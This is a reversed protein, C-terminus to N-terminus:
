ILSAFIASGQLEASTFPPFYLFGLLLYIYISIYKKLRDQGLM